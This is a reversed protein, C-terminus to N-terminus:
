CANKETEKAHYSTRALPSSVVGSFGRVRAEGAYFAFREPTVYEAVPIQTKTPRLYQGLVLVDTGAGRLEDMASLVEEPKEGLGLLISSKTRVMGGPVGHRGPAAKAERLTRLSKDFSARSDRVHQLSRVTEVNHAILDPAAELLPELESGYYDPILAEIKISPDAERIAAVCSAFHGAGRDPLDDRDVSTLVVYDLSLEKAALAIERGEEARVPRGEGASRVACFRCGRTCLDGLIMFTATGAGWCEGKNPCHAEDCVTRLGRRALVEDVKKWTEGSPFKVKLWDPKRRSDPVANDM